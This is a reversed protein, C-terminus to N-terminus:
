SPRRSLWVSLRQVMGLLKSIAFSKVCNMSFECFGSRTDQYRAHLEHPKSHGGQIMVLLARSYLDIRLDRDHSEFFDATLGASSVFFEAFKL